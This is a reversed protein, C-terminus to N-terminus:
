QRHHYPKVAATVGGTVTAREDEVTGVQRRPARYYNGGIIAQPRQTKERVRGQSGLGLM